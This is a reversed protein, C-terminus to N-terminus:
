VFRHRLAHSAQEATLLDRVRDPGSKITYDNHVNTIPERVDIRGHTARGTGRVTHDFVLVAAAGTQEAVLAEVEPYYRQKVETEDYFSALRSEHRVLIFAERDLSPSRSMLRGNRSMVRHPRYDGSRRPTNPPPECAYSVPPGGAPALYSLEAEVVDANTQRM